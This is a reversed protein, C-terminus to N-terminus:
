LILKLLKEIIIDKIGNALRQARAKAEVQMQLAKIETLDKIDEMYGQCQEKTIQRTALQNLYREVKEGQRKTFEESDNKATEILKKLEGVALDSLKGGLSHLWEQWDM